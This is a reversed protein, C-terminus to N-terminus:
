KSLSMINNAREYKKRNEFVLSLPNKEECFVYYDILDRWAKSVLQLRGLTQPTLNKIISLIIDAPLISFSGTLNQPKNVTIPNKIIIDEVNQQREKLCESVLSICNQKNLKEEWLNSNLSLPYLENLLCEHCSKFQVVSYNKIVMHKWNLIFKKTRKIIEKSTCRADYELDRLGEEIMHIIQDLDLYKTTRVQLKKFIKLSLPNLSINLLGKGSSYFSDYIDTRADNKFVIKRIGVMDYCGRKEDRGTYIVMHLINVVDLEKPMLYEKEYKQVKLAYTEEDESNYLPMHGIQYSTYYEYRNLKKALFCENDVEANFDLGPANIKAGKKLLFKFIEKSAYIVAYGLPTTDRQGIEEINAGKGVLYEVIGLYNYAIAFKLLTTKIEITFFSNDRQKIKRTLIIGLKSPLEYDDVNDVEKKDLLNDIEM